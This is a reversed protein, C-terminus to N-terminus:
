IRTGDLKIEGKSSQIDVHLDNGEVVGKLTYDVKGVLKFKGSGEATFTNGDVHGEGHQKGLLPAEIDAFVVDGETRLTVTGKKRGLPIDFEINYTGDIM